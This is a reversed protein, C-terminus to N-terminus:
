FPLSLWTSGLHRCPIILFRPAFPVSALMQNRPLPANVGGYQTAAIDATQRMQQETIIGKGEPLNPAKNIEDAVRKAFRDFLGM